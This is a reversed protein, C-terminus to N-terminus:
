VERGGRGTHFSTTFLGFILMCLFILYKPKLLRLSSTFITKLLWYVQSKSWRAPEFFILQIFAFAVTSLSFSHSLDNNRSLSKKENRCKQYSRNETLKIGRKLAIIKCFGSPRLLRIWLALNNSIFDPAM